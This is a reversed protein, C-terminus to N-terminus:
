LPLISMMISMYFMVNATRTREDFVINKIGSVYFSWRVSTLLKSWAKIDEVVMWKGVYMFIDM